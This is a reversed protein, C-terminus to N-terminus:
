KRTGASDYKVLVYDSSGSYTQSDLSAYSYGALYILGDTGVTINRGEDTTASGIQRSWLLSGTPDYKGIFMDFGGQNPNGMISGATYATIYANGSSDVAISAAEEDATSGMQRVWQTSLSANSKMVFIDHAGVQTNGPLAISTWGTTYVSGDPAVAIGNCFTTNSGGLYTTNTNTGFADYKKIFCYPAGSASPRGYGTLYFSGDPAAAMERVFHYDSVFGGLSWQEQGLSDYKVRFLASGSSNSIGGIIVYDNADVIVDNAEHAGASIIKSWLLTGTPDYKLLLANHVGVSPETFGSVYISGTSDVAIGGAEDHLATGWFRTWKKVGQVDYKTLFVDSQGANTNGDFSSSTYGAIYVNGAFDQVIDGPEDFGSGGSMITAYTTFSFIHSASLPNGLTDKIATTLTTTYQTNQQLNGTPDFTASTGSCSVVGTVGGIQFSSATVTGCNLTKNFFVTISNGVPFSGSGAAPSSGTVTLNTVDGSYSLISGTLPNNTLDAINALTVTFSGNGPSGGLTLRYTTGSLLNAGTVQLTGAGTGNILYNNVNTAGNVAESFTLDLTTLANLTSGSAPSALVSPTSNDLTFSYLSTGLPNGATDFINSLTVTLTGTAATGTLTIIYSRSGLATIGAINLSGRGSGGLSYNAVLSAGTMTESFNLLLATPQSLLSGAAPSFVATPAIFDVTFMSVNASPPRGGNDTINNATLTLSGTAISGSFDIQFTSASIRTASQVILSGVGPGSLAYNATIDGGSVAKSFQVQMSSLASVTSGSAISTTMVPSTADGIYLLADNALPNGASDCINNLKLYIAGNSVTGTLTLSYTDDSAKTIQSLSLAVAGQGTIQYNSLIGAGDVAESFRLTISPLAAVVTGSLPAATLEPNIADARKTTIKFEANGSCAVLLAGSCIAILWPKM